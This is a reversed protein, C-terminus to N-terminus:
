DENCIYIYDRQESRHDRLVRASGGFEGFQLQAGLNANLTESPIAGNGREEVGRKENARDLGLDASHKM